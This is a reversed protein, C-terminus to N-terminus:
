SFVCSYKKEFPTNRKIVSLVMAILKNRVANIVSMKNKGQGVKKQYYEKLEAVSRIANWASLNMMVKLKMNGMKSIRSRGRVSSGSSYPFPAMGAYCSLKKCDTLRTFGQTVVILAIATQKGVGPVTNLLAFQQSATPSQQVLKEM